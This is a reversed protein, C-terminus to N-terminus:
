ASHLSPRLLPISSKCGLVLILIPNNIYLEKLPIGLILLKKQIKKRYNWMYNVCMKFYM